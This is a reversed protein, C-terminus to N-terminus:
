IYRVIRLLKIWYGKTVEKFLLSSKVILKNESTYFGIFINTNKFVNFNLGVRGNGDEIVVVKFWSFKYDYLLIYVNM